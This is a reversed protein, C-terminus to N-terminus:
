VWAPIVLENLSADREAAIVKDRTAKSCQCFVESRFHTAESDLTLSQICLALLLRAREHLAHETLSKM